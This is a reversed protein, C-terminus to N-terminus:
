ELSTGDHLQTHTQNLDTFLFNGTSGDAGVQKPQKHESLGPVQM